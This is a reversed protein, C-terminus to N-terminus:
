GEGEKHLVRKHLGRQEREFEHGKLFDIKVTYTYSCTYICSYELISLYIRSVTYLAVQIHVNEPSIMQYQIVLQYARGQPHINRESEASWLQRYSKTYYQPSTYILTM